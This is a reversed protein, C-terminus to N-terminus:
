LVNTYQSLVTVYVLLVYAAKHRQQLGDYCIKSLSENGSSNLISLCIIQAGSFYRETETYLLLIFVFEFLDSFHSVSGLPGKLLLAVPVM